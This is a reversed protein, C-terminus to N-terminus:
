SNHHLNKAGAFHHEGSLRETQNYSFSPWLSHICSFQDLHLVFVQLWGNESDFISHFMGFSDLKMRREPWFKSEIHSVSCTCYMSSINMLFYSYKNSFLFSLWSRQTPNRSSNALLAVMTSPSNSIPFWYWTYMSVNDDRQIGVSSPMSTYQVEWSTVATWDATADHKFRRLQWNTTTNNM